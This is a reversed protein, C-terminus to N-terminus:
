VGSLSRRSKLTFIPSIQTFTAHFRSASHLWAQIVCQYIGSLYLKSDAMIGSWYAYIRSPNWKSTQTQLNRQFEAHIRSPNRKSEARIRSLSRRSILTFDAHYKRSIQKSCPILCPNPMPLNSQIGSLSRRSIQRFDPQQMTQLMSEANTSEM